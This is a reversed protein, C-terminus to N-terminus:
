GPFDIKRKFTDCFQLLFEVDLQQINQFQSSENLFFGDIDGFPKKTKGFTFWINQYPLRVQQVRPIVLM